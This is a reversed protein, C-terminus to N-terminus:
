VRRLRYQYPARINNATRTKLATKAASAYIMKPPNDGFTPSGTNLFATGGVEGRDRGYFPWYEGLTLSQVVSLPYHGAALRLRYDSSIAELDDAVIMLEAIRGTFYNSFTAPISVTQSAGLRIRDTTPISGTGTDTTTGNLAVFLSTDFVAFAHNWANFNIGSVSCPSGVGVDLADAQLVGTSGNIYLKLFKADTSPQQIFLIQHTSGTNTPYFWLSVTFPTSFTTALRLVDDTGDFVRSM